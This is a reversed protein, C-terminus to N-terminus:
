IKKVGPRVQGKQPPLTITFTTGVGERSSAALNGGMSQIIGYCVSLGLGTGKGVPKTTFFPSFIKELNEPRIGAGSDTVTIEARGEQSRKAHIELSGGETPNKETIADMANNYLNLLVQQLQAPDAYIRPTNEHIDQSIHIGAVAAQKEIMATVEPVFEQLAITQPAPEGQRGFKLIAQTIKACRNIQLQIQNMCDLVTALDDSEKLEGTKRMEDLVMDILAKESKMIQLPNNIEHAFGAAMEGLEALRSAGILQQELFGKDTEMKEMRRIIRGTVYFGLPIILMGSVTSILLSFFSAMRLSQFADSKEKRVVLLWDNSKLWATAYLYEDGSHDKQIFTEIGSHYAPHIEHEPDRTMLSGGSRRETQFFGEKNLIYAEGTKGIRVREVFDTFLRSDITSRLVWQHDGDKKRVAIIFHPEKRFGLFVDSIYWGSKMVKKFWPADSYVKGSLEYPGWYALHVGNEDFLGIDAFAPSKRQLDMIVGHLQDSQRLKEVPYTNLVWALDTKREELFFEIVQRHDEVIRKMSEITKNEISSYFFYGGSALVLLFPMFPIVIMSVLLIRRLPGYPDEPRIIGPNIVSPHTM